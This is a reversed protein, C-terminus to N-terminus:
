CCSAWVGTSWLACVSGEKMMKHHMGMAQKGAAETCNIDAWFFAKLAQWHRGLWFALM